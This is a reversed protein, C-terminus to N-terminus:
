ISLNIKMVVARTVFTYYLVSRLVFTIFEIFSCGKIKMCVNTRELISIYIFYIFYVKLGVFIMLYRLIFFFVCYNEEAIASLKFM